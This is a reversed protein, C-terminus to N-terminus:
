IGYIGGIPQQTATPMPQATSVQQQAMLAQQEEQIKIKETIREVNERAYPYHAREMNQWFILLTQIDRPDGFAGDRFNQRTEAWIQERNSEIDGVGDTAFLYDYDYYYEGNEDREVFDYRSFEANNFRGQADKYSVKRPEDAFALYLQFIVEDVEAYAANKMRRKSDLRGQAQQVQIQKAKGSQASADYQGQFSNSIGLIRKAHDYVRDAQAIDQAISTQMDIAGYLGKDKQAVKLVREMITEDITGTYDEPVTLLVGARVLKDLIRSEIKNIEQQQPRIFECDSQGFLNDEQSTNKRIVIPFKTPVFYPLKTPELKPVDVDIMAPVLIGGIDDMAVQGNPLVAQRKEAQMVVQGNEIAESMAPIFSGDSLKIDHTLEEFDDDEDVFKPHECECLGERKGCIKCVRRKRSYYKDVDSLIVDGSWIFRCVADDDDKYFCIIESAIKEDKDADDSEAEEAVSFSVGYKRVLDEKTTDIVIFCYEMDNIDYINPQGIFHTPSLCTVKVDGITNHTRISEDWEVLWVSGGYIVSYREDMDNMKEYPLKNRLNNLLKEIFFANRENKESWVKATVSAPPIYSSIQSELLEYTINRVVTADEAKNNGKADIKPSGKYQEVWKQMDASLTEAKTKAEEYLGKFFELKHEKDIKM